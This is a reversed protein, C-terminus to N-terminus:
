TVSRISPISLPESWHITGYIRQQFILVKMRQLSKWQGCILNIRTKKIPSALFYGAFRKCDKEFKAMEKKTYGDPIIVIDVKQSPDGNYLIKVPDCKLKREQSIFYSSPDIIYQFKKIWKYKNDRSYFEVKITAKPYPMIVTESFAKTGKKAEETTRWEAFLSSYNKQFIIKGSAKDYAVLKFKGYNFTDVLNAKSGGWIPESKLEDIAYFEATDSGAHIYDIRLTKSLFYDDFAAFSRLSLFLSLLFTLKIIKM